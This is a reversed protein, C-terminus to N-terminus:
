PWDISGRPRFTSSRLSGAGSPGLRRTGRDRRDHRGGGARLARGLAPGGIRGVVLRGAGGDGDPAADGRRLAHEYLCQAAPLRDAGGPLVGEPRAPSIRPRRLRDNAADFGSDHGASVPRGALGLGSAATVENSPGTRWLRPAACAWCGRAAWPRCPVAVSRALRPTGILLTIVGLLGAGLGYDLAIREVVDSVSELKCGASCSTM